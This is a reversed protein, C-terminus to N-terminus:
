ENVMDTVIHHLLADDDRCHSLSQNIHLMSLYEDLPADLPPHTLVDRLMREISTRSELSVNAAVSSGDMQSLLYPVTCAMLDPVSQSVVPALSAALALPVPRYPPLAKHNSSDPHNSHRLNLCTHGVDFLADWLLMPNEDAHNSSSIIGNSSPADSPGIGSEEASAAAARLLRDLLAGLAFMAEVDDARQARSLQLIRDLVLSAAALTSTSRCGVMSTSDLQVVTVNSTEKRGEDYPLLTAEDSDLLLPPCPVSSSVSTVTAASAAAASAAAAGGSVMVGVHTAPVLVLRPGLPGSSASSVTAMARALDMCSGSGVGIVVGGAGHNGASSGISFRSALKRVHQIQHDSGFPFAQEVGLLRLGLPQQLLYQANHSVHSLQRKDHLRQQRRVSDASSGSGDDGIIVAPRRSSGQHNSSSSSSSSSGQDHHHEPLIPNSVFLAPWQRFAALDDQLFRRLGDFGNRVVRSTAAKAAVAGVFPSPHPPAM